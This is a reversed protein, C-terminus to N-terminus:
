MPMGTLPVPRVRTSAPVVVAPLLETAIVPPVRLSKETPMSTLPGPMAGPDMIVLMLLGGEIIM